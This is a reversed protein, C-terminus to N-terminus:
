ATNKSSASRSLSSTTWTGGRCQRAAERALLHRPFRWGMSPDAPPGPRRWRPRGPCWPSRGDGGGLSQLCTLLLQGHRVQTAPMQHRPRELLRADPVDEGQATAVDQGDVVAADAFADLHHVHAVLLGGRVRTVGVRAEGAVDSHGHHRGAGPTVSATVPTALAKEARLGRRRMPPAAGSARRPRPESCSTSCTSRSRGMVLPEHVTDSVRCIGSTSVVAMRVASVPRGPGTNTSIGTSTSIVIISSRSAGM